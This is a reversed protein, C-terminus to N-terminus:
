TMWWGIYVVTRPRCPGDIIEEDRSPNKWVDASRRSNMSSKDCTVQDCDTSSIPGVHGLIIKHCIMWTPSVFNHYITWIIKTPRCMCRKKTTVINHDLLVLALSKHCITLWKHWVYPLMHPLFGGPTLILGKSSIWLCQCVGVGMQTVYCKFPGM